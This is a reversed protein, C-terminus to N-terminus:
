RDIEWDEQLNVPHKLKNQIRNQCQCQKNDNMTMKVIQEDENWTSSKKNSPNVTVTDNVLSDYEHEATLNNASLIKRM